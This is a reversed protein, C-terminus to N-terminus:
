ARQHLKCRSQHAFAEEKYQIPFRGMVQQRSVESIRM